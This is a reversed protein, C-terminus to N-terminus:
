YTPGLAVGWPNGGSITRIPSSNGTAGASFEFVKNAKPDAVYINGSSDVAVGQPEMLVSSSIYYDPDSTGSPPCANWINIRGKYGSWYGSSSGGGVYWGGATVTKCQSGHNDVAVGWAFWDSSGSGNRPSNLVYLPTVNLGSATKDFVMLEDKSTFGNAVYVKGTSGFSLGTPMIMNESEFYRTPSVNGTANAPFVAVVGFPNYVYDAETGTWLNGSSDVALAYAIGWSVTTNLGRIDTSPSVNGNDDPAFGLVAGEAGEVSAVWTKGSPNVTIARPSSIETNTGGFQAIPTNSSEYVSIAGNPFTSTSNDAVFIHGSYANSVKVGSATKTAVASSNTMATSGGGCSDLTPILCISISLLLLSRM